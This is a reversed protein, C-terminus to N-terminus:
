MSPAPLAHGAFLVAGPLSLFYTSGILSLYTLFSRHGDRNIILTNDHQTQQWTMLIGNIFLVFLGLRILCLVLGQPGQYDHWKHREEHDIFMLYAIALHIFVAGILLWKYVKIDNLGVREQVTGYGYALSLFLVCLSLQSLLSSVTSQIRFVLFGQGYYAYQVMFMFQFLAKLGLQSLAGLTALLPNDAREFNIM